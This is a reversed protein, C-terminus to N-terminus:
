VHKINQFWQLRGVPTPRSKSDASPFDAWHTRAKLTVQDMYYTIMKRLLIGEKREQLFESIKTANKKCNPRKQKANEGDTGTGMYSCLRHQLNTHLTLLFGQELIIGMECTGAVWRM